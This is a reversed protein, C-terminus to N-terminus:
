NIPEKECHMGNLCFQPKHASAVIGDISGSNARVFPPNNAVPIKANLRFFCPHWVVEKV